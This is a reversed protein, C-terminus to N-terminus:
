RDLKLDLSTSGLRVVAHTRSYAMSEFLKFEPRESRYGTETRPRELAWVTSFRSAEMQRCGLFLREDGLNCGLMPALKSAIQRRAQSVGGIYRIEDLLHEQPHQAHRAVFRDAIGFGVNHRDSAMDQVLVRQAQRRMRLRHSRDIYNYIQLAGDLSIRAYLEVRLPPKLFQVIREQLQRGVHVGGEDQVTPIPQCKLLDRALEADGTRHDFFVECLGQDLALRVQALPISILRM